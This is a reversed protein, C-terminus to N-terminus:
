LDSSDRATLPQNLRYRVPLELVFCAGKGVGDSHVTLSGGMERAALAGSHLGYGHGGKRTTFGHSFIRTLNEPPIGIGNDTVEMRVRGSGAVGTRLTVRRDHSQNAECAYKANQLLNVLIQIAKHRDVSLAPADAYERSVQIAHREYAMSHMRFADDLLESATVVETVGAVKAYTQQMLVIEKIHEINRVLAKIEELLDAKEAALHEHLTELFTVLQKGKDDRTLFAALDRENERLLALVKGLRAAGSNKIREEVVSASVNVSNLVNGVNHLVSTAVEAMGAHRSTEVLQKHLSELKAEWM